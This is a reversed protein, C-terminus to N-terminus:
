SFNGAVAGGLAVTFAGLGGNAANNSVDPDVKKGIGLLDEDLSQKINWSTYTKSGRFGSSMALWTHQVLGAKFLTDCTLGSGYVGVSYTAKGPMSAALGQQVGKFYDTIGGAIEDSSADYDVAFYIASDIPQGITQAQNSASTADDVGQKFSFFSSHDGLTEWVTVVWMGAGCILRAESPSLNKGPSHSYYRCIFNTGVAKAKGLLHSCDFDADFGKLSGASPAGGGTGAAGGAEAGAAGGTPGAGGGTPGAAPGPTAAAYYAVVTYTGKGDPAATVNVAPPSDDYYGKIIEGLRTPSVETETVTNYKMVM